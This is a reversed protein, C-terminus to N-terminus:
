DISKIQEKMQSLNTEWHYNELVFKRLNRGMSFLIQDNNFNALIIQKLHEADRYIFISDADPCNLTQFLKENIVVPLEMAMAELIKNQIGRAIRVPMVAMRSKALYPRVDEVFGTVVVNDSLKAMKKVEVSPNSGVIYFKIGPMAELIKLFVNEVFWTVADINPYYDMAGVFVIANDKEINMPSFYKTDVGNNIAIINGNGGTDRFLQVESETSFIAMSFNQSIMKEYKLLRRSEMQYILNFPFKINQSFQRWKDSDVDVFDMVRKINQHRALYQGVQASFCFAFEYSSNNILDDIQKYAHRNFYFGESLSKGRVFFILAKIIGAIKQLKFVFIRSCFQQLEGKYTFDNENDVFTVLDIQYDRSLSQLEHFSRIKDGKNPPYPIRHCVFLIRQM